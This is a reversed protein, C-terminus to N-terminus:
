FGLKNGGAGAPPLSQVPVSLTKETVVGGADEFRLTLPFVAGEALPRDPDLIALQVGGPRLRITKAAPLAISPEPLLEMGKLKSVLTHRVEIRRAAPSFANVLRLDESATLAMFLASERQGAAPARVWAGSVQVPAAAPARVHVRVRSDVQHGGACSLRVPFWLAGGYSPFRGRLAFDPSVADANALGSESASWYVAGARGLPGNKQVTDRQHVSWGARPLAEDLRFWMPLEIALSKMRQGVPCGDAVRFSLTQRSGAAVDDPTLAVHAVAAASAFGM